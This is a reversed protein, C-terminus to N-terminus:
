EESTARRHRGNDTEYGKKDEKDMRSPMVNEKTRVKDLGFAAKPAADKIGAIFGHWESGSPVEKNYNQPGRLNASSPTSGGTSTSFRSPLCLGGGSITPVPLRPPARAMKTAVSRLLAAMAMGVVSAGGIRHVKNTKRLENFELRLKEYKGDVEARHKESREESEALQVKMVELAETVNEVVVEAKDVRAIVTYALMLGWGGSFGLLVCKAMLEFLNFKSGSDMSEWEKRVFAKFKESRSDKESVQKTSSSLLRLGGISLWYSNRDWRYHSGARVAFLILFPNPIKPDFVDVLPSIRVWSWGSGGHHLSYYSSRPNGGGRALPKKRRLHAGFLDRLLSPRAAM